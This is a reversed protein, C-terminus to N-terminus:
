KKNSYLRLISKISKGRYKGHELYDELESQDALGVKFMSPEDAFGKRNSVFRMNLADQLDDAPVGSLKIVKDVAEITIKPYSALELRASKESLNMSLLIILFNPLLWKFSRELFLLDRDTIM